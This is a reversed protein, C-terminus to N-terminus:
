SKLICERRSWCITQAAIDEDRRAERKAVDVVNQLFPDMRRGIDGAGIESTGLATAALAPTYYTSAQGLPTGALGRAGFQERGTQFAQQQEPTFQALQPGGFPIYGEGKERAFEGKAEGLIDKIFPRLETPFESTQTVSSPPQPAPLNM